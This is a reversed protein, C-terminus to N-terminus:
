LSRKKVAQSIWQPSRRCDIIRWVFVSGSELSYFLQYPHKSALACYLGYRQRHLGATSSLEAIDPIICDLFYHGQGESQREYFGFRSKLDAKASRTIIVEM